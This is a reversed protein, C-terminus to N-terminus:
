KKGKCVKVCLGCIMQGIKETKMFGKLKERCLELNFTKRGIAGSPCAPVCMECSGCEGKIPSDFKLPMDTLVTALRLQSGFDPNILLNSRGYWGLGALRAIERHSVTGLQKKWHIVQSAPVPFARYGKSQILATLKLAAGDLLLNVRQYHFYYLQNPAAELTELVSGSLRFGISVGATFKASLEEPLQFDKKARAIDAAGFVAMGENLVLKKLKRYNETKGM